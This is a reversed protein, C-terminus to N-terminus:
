KNRGKEKGIVYGRKGIVIMWEEKRNGGKGDGGHGARAWKLVYM